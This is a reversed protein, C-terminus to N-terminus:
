SVPVVKDLMNAVKIGTEGEEESFAKMSDDICTGLDEVENVLRTVLDKLDNLGDYHSIDYGVRAFVSDVIGCVGDFYDALDAEQSQGDLRAAAERILVFEQQLDQVLADKVKCLLLSFKNVLTNDQGM